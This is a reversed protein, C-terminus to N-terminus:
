NRPPNLVVVNYGAHHFSNVLPTSYNGTAELVVGSRRHTKSEILKISDFATAVGSADNTFCFPKSLPQNLALFPNAYSSSKSVDICLSPNKM